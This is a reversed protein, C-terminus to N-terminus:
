RGQKSQIETMVEVYIASVRSKVMEQVEQSIDDRFHITFPRESEEKFTADLLSVLENSTFNSAAGNVFEISDGKKIIVEQSPKDFNPKDDGFFINDFAEMTNLMNACNLLIENMEQAKDADSIKYIDRYMQAYRMVTKITKTSEQNRSIKNFDEEQYEIGEGDFILKCFNKASEIKWNQMWYQRLTFMVFNIIEQKM